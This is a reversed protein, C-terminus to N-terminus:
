ECPKLLLPIMFVYGSDFTACVCDNAMVNKKVNMQTNRTLMTLGPQFLSSSNVQFFPDQGQGMNGISFLLQRAVMSNSTLAKAMNIVSCQFVDRGITIENVQKTKWSFQSNGRQVTPFFLSGTITKISYQKSTARM